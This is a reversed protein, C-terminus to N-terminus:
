DPFMDLKDLKMTYTYGAGATVTPRLRRRFLHPCRARSRESVKVKRNNEDALYQEKIGM